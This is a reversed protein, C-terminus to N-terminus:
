NFIEYKYIASDQALGYIANDNNDVAIRLIYESVNLCTVFAGEWNFVHIKMPKEKEFSIDYPQDMYLAYIYKNTTKLDCYYTHKELKTKNDVIQNENILPGISCSFRHNSIIDWFNLENISYMASAMKKLDNSIRWISKYYSFVGEFTPTYIQESKINTTSIPNISNMHYNNGSMYEVIILSDNIYFANSSYPYTQIEKDFVCSNNIISKTINLKKLKASSIDNIWIFSEKGRIEKQGNLQCNILDDPGNGKTGFVSIFDGSLNYIKFLSSDSPTTLIIHNGVIDFDNIGILNNIIIEGKLTSCEKVEVCSYNNGSFYSNQEKGCSLLM